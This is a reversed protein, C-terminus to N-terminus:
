RSRGTQTQPNKRTDIEGPEPGKEDKDQVENLLTANREFHTNREITLQANKKKLEKMDKKLKQIEVQTMELQSKNEALEIELSDIQHKYQDIEQELQRIKETVENSDGSKARLFVLERQMKEM